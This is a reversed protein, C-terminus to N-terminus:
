KKGWYSSRKRYPRKKPKREQEMLYPDKMAHEVAPVTETSILMPAACAPCPGKVRVGMRERLVIERAGNCRNCSMGRM